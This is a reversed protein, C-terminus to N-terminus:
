NVVYDLMTVFDLVFAVSQKINYALRSLVFDNRIVRMEVSVISLTLDEGM